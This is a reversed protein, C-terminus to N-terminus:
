SAVFQQVNPGYTNVHGASDTVRVSVKTTVSGSSSAPWTTDVATWQYQIIGNAQDVVDFRGMGERDAQKALDRILLTFNASSLGALSVAKGSTKQLTWQDLPTDGMQMPALTAM